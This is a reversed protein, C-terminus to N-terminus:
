AQTARCPRSRRAGPPLCRDTVSPARSRRVELVKVAGVSARQSVTVTVTTGVKLRVGRYRRDLSVTGSDRRVVYPKRAKGPCQRRRFACRARVTAGRPVDKVQLRTFATSRASARFTYSVAVRLRPFPRAAGDCDEDVANGPVEKRGPRIDPDSDNCDGRQDVGDGDGDVAAVTWTRAVPTADVNGARDVARAEFRNRGFPLAAFSAQPGCPAFDAPALRCQFSAPESAGLAFAATLLTTVDGEDPGVSPDLATDPTTTDVTWTRTVPVRDLDAGDRARARITHEGESLNDFTPTAGCAAFAAGDLSCDFTVGTRTAFAFAASTSAAFDPPGGALQTDLIRFAVPGAPSGVNGAPDRARVRVAHSGEDLTFPTTPTCPAFAGDDLSCEFTVPSEDAALAPFSVTRDVTDSYSPPGIATVTPIRDVAFVAKPFVTRNVGAPAHIVCPNSSPATDCGEWRLFTHSGPAARPVATLVLTVPPNTADDPSAIITRGCTVTVRDDVNDDRVCVPSPFGTSLVRGAGQVSVNADVFTASAADATVMGVAGLAVVLVILRWAV